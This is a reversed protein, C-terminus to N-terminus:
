EHKQSDERKFFDAIVPAAPQDSSTCAGLTLAIAVSCPLLRLKM